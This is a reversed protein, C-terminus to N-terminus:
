MSENNEQEIKDLAAIVDWCFNEEKVMNVFHYRKMQKLVNKQVGAFLLKVNEHKCKECVDILEHMGSDDISPVGRMSFIIYSSDGIITNVTNAIQEQSGFFLPGSLYVVKTDKHHYNLEKDVRSPEIDSVEVDLDANNIVFLFMSVVVGIVIAITLDFVVTALMTVLFQTISTKIRKSFFGKIEHWENMRWATM